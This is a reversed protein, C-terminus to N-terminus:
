NLQLRYNYNLMFIMKFTKQWKFYFIRAESNHKQLTIKYIKIKRKTRFRRSKEENKLSFFNINKIM